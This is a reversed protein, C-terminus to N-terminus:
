GAEPRVLVFYAALVAAMLYMLWRVERGRGAALKIVPYSVFGLALGDGISYTLPIGIITLFAPMAETYDQWDIKTVGRMMMSGVVILAPATIAPYGGVMRVIPAFFLAALFLVAVVVATLGTRGGQEVGATSEIYSTVTSTGMAAGAVTGVADSVLAQRARPLEGDKILGAQESVGVLTGLTDFLDMFLFILVYPAMAWTLAAAIDMRWFTPALSPPAEVVAGAVAFQSALTSNRFADSATWLAPLWEELQKMGTALLTAALIGWIIAGRVRRAFLGAIIILGFAFVVFDPSTFEPNLALATGTPRILGANILGIFAIFMGIGVAIANRMSPSIASLILQRVGLLSLVLFLVGAVMVVGLAVQWPSSGQGAVAAAAPIVSVVFFFNEGMGPAQGIPYNAYLGMIITALAATLCTATMVAGPDMGTPSGTLRGSLIAPQLFVIYAMTLFTTLGALLETRVNTGNKRLGFFRDLM